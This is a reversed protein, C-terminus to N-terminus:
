YLKFFNMKAQRFATAVKKSTENDMLVHYLSNRTIIKWQFMNDEMGMYKLDIIKSTEGQRGDTTKFALTIDTTRPDDQNQSEVPGIGYVQKAITASRTNM